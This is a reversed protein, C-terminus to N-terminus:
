KSKQKIAWLRYAEDEYPDSGTPPPVLKAGESRIANSPWIREFNALVLELINLCGQPVEGYIVVNLYIALDLAAIEIRVGLM